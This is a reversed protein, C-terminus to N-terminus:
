LTLLKLGAQGICHFRKEVSFVVILQVHHHAGTIEAVQSAPASSNSSGPLSLNCHASIVGSCELRPSLALSWRYDWSGLLALICHAIIVDSCEMRPSLALGQLGLMTPPWPWHDDSTLHGLGVQAIHHFRTKSGPLRFSCHALIMGRCELRPAPSCHSVGDTTGAVLFASHPPDSSGLLSLSCHAMTAGSCELRPLLAPGATQTYILTLLLRTHLYFTIQSPWACHSMGTIGASQSATTGAVRSAPAPSDSSDLLCFNCHALIKGSFELRPSLALSEVQSRYTIKTEKLKPDMKILLTQEPSESSLVFLVEGKDPLIIPPPRVSHSVGSIGASGARQSALAPPDKSTLLKLGAQGVHHFGTEVLFVFILWTHQCTGTIGAVLCASSPSDSSGNCEMRPLFLSIGDSTLFEVSAQGVHRFGTEVLLVFNALCPPVHRYDWSSLLSLCSFYKFWSSPLSLGSYRKFGPSPSQWLGINCWQVGAQAVLAFLADTIEAVQSVSTPPSISGLLKLSCHAIIIGSYEPQTASCSETKSGPLLFNCHAAIAGSYELRPSLFLTQRYFILRTHHHVDTTGALQSTSAPSDSSGPLCLNCHASIAGSCELRPLLALSQKLGPTPSGGSCCLSVGTELDLFNAPHPPTHRYCCHAMITGSCELSFWLILGQRTCHSVGTIRVSQSASTPPYSSTLLKLAAQCIYCSEM